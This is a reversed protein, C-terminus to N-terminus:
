CLSGPHPDVLSAGSVEDGPKFEVRVAVMEKTAMAVGVPPHEADSSSAPAAEDVVVLDTALGVDARANPSRPVDVIGAAADPVEIQSPLEM